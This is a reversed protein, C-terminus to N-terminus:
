LIRAYEALLRKAVEEPNQRERRARRGEAVLAAALGPEQHIRALAAAFTRANRAALAERGDQAELGALAAPTAVVPVGRAWAELIKMRVGSAIRLPVALVAGPAFAEASERPAPHLVVRPPLATSPVAGFLHGFLHLVAGSLAAAVAPWVASLFWAVGEENPVWGQSGLVVVAPEGALREGAAAPLEPFPARLVSFRGGSGALQRLRAADEVTLSLTLAARRM